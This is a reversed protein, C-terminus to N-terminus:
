FLFSIFYFSLPPSQFSPEMTLVSSARGFSGPKSGLVWLATWTGPYGIGEEPPMAHIHQVFMCSTLVGMYMYYFATGTALM